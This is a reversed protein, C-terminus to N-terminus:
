AILGISERLVLECRFLRQHPQRPVHQRTPFLLAALQEVAAEAMERLPQRVTALPPWAFRASDIDDFGAVALQQPVRRGLAHAAHLVGLAMEDNAAFVASLKPRLALLAAGARRGSEFSFDGQFVRRPDARLGGDRLADHYGALREEATRTSASGRVFGIRRHGREILAQVMRCAAARDDVAVSPALGDLQNANIGSYLLGEAQLRPLLGPLSDLPSLVVVGGVRRSRLRAVLSAAAQADAADYPLLLLGIDLRQCAALAGLQVNMTYQRGDCAGPGAAFVLGVTNEVASSLNRASPHPTYGLSAAAAAVRERTGQRVRPEHNLVRSVTKISVGASAAVERITAAPAWV